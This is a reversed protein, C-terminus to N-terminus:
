FSGAKAIARSLRSRRRSSTISSRGARLRSSSPMPGEAGDARARGLSHRARVELGAERVLGAGRRDHAEVRASAPVSRRVLSAAQGRGLPGHASVSRDVQARGGTLRFILRRLDTMLRGYTNYLGIVIHGGPRGAARAIPIWRVSRQHPAARRQLARRRVAGAQLLAPVPEDARLARTSARARPPVARRAAALEPVPRHRCGAAPSASSTREAAPAAASKSCRATTRFRTTRAHQAYVGRRSKEILSRVSDHDDYNPFPTEEYFAKVAETVDSTTSSRRTRGSCSRFATRSRSTAPRLRRVAM